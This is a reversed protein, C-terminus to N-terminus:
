QTSTQKSSLPASAPPPTAPGGTAKVIIDLVSFGLLLSLAAFLWTTPEESVRKKEM